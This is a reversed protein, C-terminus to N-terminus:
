GYNSVTVWSYYTTTRSCYQPETIIDAPSLNVLVWPWWFSLDEKIAKREQKYVGAQQLLEELTIPSPEESVNAKADDSSETEGETSKEAGEEGDM